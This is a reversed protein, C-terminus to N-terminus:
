ELETRLYWDYCHAWLIFWKVNHASFKPGLGKSYDEKKTSNYENMQKRVLATQHFAECVTGVWSWAASSNIAPKIRSIFPSCCSPSCFLQWQCTLADQAVTTCILYHFPLTVWYDTEKTWRHSLVLFVSFCLPLLANLAMIRLLKCTQEHLTQKYQCVTQETQRTEERKKEKDVEM